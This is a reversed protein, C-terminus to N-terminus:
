PLGAASPAAHPSVAAPRPAHQGAARRRAAAADARLGASVELVFLLLLAIALGGLAVEFRTAVDRDACCWAWLRRAARLLM